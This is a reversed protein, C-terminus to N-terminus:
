LKRLAPAVLALVTVVLWIGVLALGAGSLQLIGVLVSGLFAGGPAM